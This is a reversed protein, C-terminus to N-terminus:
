LFRNPDCPSLDIPISQNQILAVIIKGSVPALGLGVMAHGTAIYINHHGRIKGLYPVGDASCPRLGAWYNIDPYNNWDFEPFYRNFNQQIAYIRRDNIRVNPRTIEMTGALRFHSQMPTAALRDETLIFPIHPLSHDQDFTLSYGRGAQLPLRFGLESMLRSTWVGGTLVLEDAHYRARNGEVAIVQTGNYIFGQIEDQVMSVLPHQVLYSCLASMLIHPDTTTDQHYHIAGKVNMRINPFLERLHNKDYETVELGLSVAQEAIKCEHQHMKETRSMMLIGQQWRPFELHKKWEGFLDQSWAFLDLFTTASRDVHKQNAHRIFHYGWKFLDWSWRPQIYFPSTADFMWKIGQWVVGPAALPIFHSPTIMGANGHSCGAKFGERDILTVPIQAQALYYATSLGLIGGGVVVVM